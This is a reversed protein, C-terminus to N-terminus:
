VRFLVARCPEGFVQSLAQCYLALQRAYLSTDVLEFDTKFDVVVWAGSGDPLLERYALDVVGDLLKGDAERLSVPWERFVEGRAEAAQVAQWLPHGLAHKTDAIARAREAESAGIGRGVLAALGALEQDSSAASARELL